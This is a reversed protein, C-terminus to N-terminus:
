YKVGIELLFSLDYFSGGPLFDSFTRDAELRGGCVFSWGGVPVEMTALLGVFAQGFVDHHRRFGDTELIPNMEVHGTGWRGGVDWGFRFNADYLGAVFGPSHQYWDRGAGLGVAWRYLSRITVPTGRFISTDQGGADNYEYHLHADVVWASDGPPDFFQARGGVQAVWGVNLNKVFIGEGLPVSPGVRFYVEQGLPGHSGVPGCCDPQVGPVLALPPTGAPAVCGPGPCVSVPPAAPPPVIGAIPPTGPPLPMPTQVEVTAIPAAPTLVSSGVITGGPLTAIPPPPSLPAPLRAPTQGAGIGTGALLAVSTLWQRIGRM